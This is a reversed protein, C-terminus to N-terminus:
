MSFTDYLWMQSQRIPCLPTVKDLELHDKLPVQPGLLV